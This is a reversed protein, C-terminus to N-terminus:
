VSVASVEQIRMVGERGSDLLDCRQTYFWSWNQLAYGLVLLSCLIAYPNSLGTAM